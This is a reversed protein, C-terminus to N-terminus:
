KVPANSEFLALRPQGDLYGTSVHGTLKVNQRPQPTRVRTFVVMTDRGQHLYFAYGGGVPFVEGVKGNVKVDQGNFRDPHQRLDALSVGREGRPFFVITLLAAVALVALFQLRRDTRFAEPAHLWWPLVPAPVNFIEPEVVRHPRAIAEAASAEAMAVQANARSREEADDMPFDRTPEAPISSRTPERRIAPVSNAGPEWSMASGQMFESAGLDPTVAGAPRSANPLPPAFPGTPRVLVPKAPPAPSGGPQVGESAGPRLLKPVLRPGTELPDGHQLEAEVGEEAGVLWDARGSDPTSSSPPAPTSEPEQPEPSGM